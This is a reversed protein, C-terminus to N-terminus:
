YGSERMRKDVLECLEPYEGRLVLETEEVNKIPYPIELGEAKDHYFKLAKEPKSPINSVLIPSYSEFSYLTDCIVFISEDDSLNAISPRDIAEIATRLIRFFISTKHSPNEAIFRGSFRDFCPQSTVAFSNGIPLEAMREIIFNAVFRSSRWRKFNVMNAPKRLLFADFFFSHCLVLITESVKDTSSDM